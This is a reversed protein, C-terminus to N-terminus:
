GLGPLTGVSTKAQQGGKELTGLLYVKFGSDWKVDVTVKSLTKLTLLWHDAPPSFNFTSETWGKSAAQKDWNTKIEKFVKSTNKSEAISLPM